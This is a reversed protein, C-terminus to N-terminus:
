RTIQLTNNGVNFISYELAFCGEGNIPSGDLTSYEKDSCPCKLKLGDFTMATTCDNEPCKLDFAKYATNTRRIIILNRAAVSTISSGGPVQIDIYQANNLDITENFSFNSFCNNNIADSSCGLFTIFVLLLLLNKM